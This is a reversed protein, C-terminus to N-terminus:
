PHIYFSKNTATTLSTMKPPGHIIRDYRCRDMLHCYRTLDIVPKLSLIEVKENEKITTWDTTEIM